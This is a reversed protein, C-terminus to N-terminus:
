PTCIHESSRFSIRVDNDEKSIAVIACDDNRILFFESTHHIMKYKESGIILTRGEWSKPWTNKAQIWAIGIASLIFILAVYPIYQNASNAGGSFFYRPAAIILCICMALSVYKYPHNHGTAKLFILLLLSFVLSLIFSALFTGTAQIAFHYGETFKDLRDQTLSFVNSFLIILMLLLISSTARSSASELSFLTGPDAGIFFIFSYEFAISHAISIVGFSVLAKSVNAANKEVGAFISMM